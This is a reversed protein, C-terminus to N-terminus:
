LVRGRLVLLHDQMVLGSVIRRLARGKRRLYPLLSRPETFSPTQGGEPLFNAALEEQRRLTELYPGIIRRRVVANPRVHWTALNTNWMWPAVKLLSSFHFFVLPDDDVWVSGGRERVRHGALNWPGLNAGRHQLVHVGDFLRPWQDLYKQDAYRDGELRAYCWELCRERWWELCALGSRDRRFSLWGVNYIGCRERERVQEAFRHPIIAVSAGAAEQFLPEPDGYFYLDADLYTVQDVSPNTRLVWRPLSPTCTFCYEVPSRTPRVGRLEADEFEDLAVPIARSLRLQRMAAHSEADMCLTYLRFDPCHRLLSEYLALARPLFNRDFYTCFTRTM